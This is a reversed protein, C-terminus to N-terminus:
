TLRAPTFSVSMFSRKLGSDVGDRWTVTGFMDWSSEGRLGRRHEGGGAADNGCGAFGAWGPERGGTEKRVEM